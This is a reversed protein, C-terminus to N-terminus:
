RYKGIACRDFARLSQFLEHDAMTVIVDRCKSGPQECVSEPAADIVGVIRRNALDCALCRWALIPPRRDNQSNDFASRKLVYASFYWSPLARRIFILLAADHDDCLLGDRPP